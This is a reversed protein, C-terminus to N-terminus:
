VVASASDINSSISADSAQIDDGKNKVATKTSEPNASRKDGCLRQVLYVSGFVLVGTGLLSATIIGGLTSRQMGDSTKPSVRLYRISDTQNGTKKSALWNDMQEKSLYIYADKSQDLLRNIQENTTTGNADPVVCTMSSSVNCKAAVASSSTFDLVHFKNPYPRYDPLLECAQGPEGDIFIPVDGICNSAPSIDGVLQVSLHYDDSRVQLWAVSPISYCRTLQQETSIGRKTGPNGMDQFRKEIAETFKGIGANIPGFFDFEPTVKTVVRPLKAAERAAIKSADVDPNGQVSNRYLQVKQEDSLHTRKTNPTGPIIVNAAHTLGSQLNTYGEKLRNQLQTYAQM